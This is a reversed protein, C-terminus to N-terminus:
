WRTATVWWRFTCMWTYSSCKIKGTKLCQLVLTILNIDICLSCNHNKCEYLNPAIDSTNVVNVQWCYTVFNFHNFIELICLLSSKRTRVKNEFWSIFVCRDLKLDRTALLRIIGPTFVFWSLSDNAITFCWFWKSFLM